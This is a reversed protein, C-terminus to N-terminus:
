ILIRIPQVVGDGQENILRLRNYLMRTITQGKVVLPVGKKSLIDETVIMNPKLESLMIDKTKIKIKQTHIFDVEMQRLVKLLHFYIENM